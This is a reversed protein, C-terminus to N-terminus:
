GPIGFLEECVDEGHIMPRVQLVTGVGAAPGADVWRTLQNASTLAPRLTIADAGSVTGCRPASGSGVPTGFEGLPTALPWTLVKPPLSADEVPELGVLIAYADAVYPTEPGLDAALWDLDTISQWFAAFAEPTGPDPVCRADGCRVLRSPDGTMDHPVGDVVLEIRGLQAGMVGNAPAFSGDGTLLGLGKARDVIKTFGDATISRAELNPLLPGPHIDPMPGPVVVTLGDTISIVPLWTFRYLPAIAQTTTARLRYTAATDSPSPGPVSPASTPTPVPATASPGGASSCAAVIVGAMLLGVLRAFRQDM